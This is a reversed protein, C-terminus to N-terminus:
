TKTLCELCTGDVRSISVCGDCNICQQCSIYLGDALPPAVGFLALELYVVPAASVTGALRTPCRAWVPAEEDLGPQTGVSAAAATVM